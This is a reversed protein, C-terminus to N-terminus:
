HYFYSDIGNSIGQVIKNQYDDTQMLEDETPNTMFGMEVITVPVKCWNIGSMTDTEIIGKNNAGTALVMASLVKESLSKSNSYLESNYPNSSTQCMTLIGSVGSNDSGNAHIRIFAEAGANNAMEARQANSINVDNTERIMLVDYGRALLEDRLKLSVSLTLEYEPIGTSVGRTGSAVKAKTEAANPGVPEQESNGKSQHGADIAILHTSKQENPMSNAAEKNEQSKTDAEQIEEIGEKPEDTKEDVTQNKQNKSAEEKAAAENETKKEESAKENGYAENNEEKSKIIEQNQANEQEKENNDVEKGTNEEKNINETNNVSNANNYTVDQNEKSISKCGTAFILMVAIILMNIIIKKHKNQM